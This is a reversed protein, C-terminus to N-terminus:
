DYAVCGIFGLRQVSPLVGARSRWSKCTPAQVGSRIVERITRTEGRIARVNGSAFAEEVLSHKERIARTEDRIARTEDRITRIEDRLQRDQKESDVSRAEGKLAFGSGVASATERARLPTDM